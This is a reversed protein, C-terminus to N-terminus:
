RLSEDTRKGSQRQGYRIEFSKLFNPSGKSHWPVVRELLDSPSSFIRPVRPNSPRDNYEVGIATSPPAQLEDMTTHQHPSPFASLASLCICGQWSEVEVRAVM